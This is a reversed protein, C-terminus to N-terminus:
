YTKCDISGEKWFPNVYPELHSWDFNIEVTGFCVVGDKWNTDLSFPCSWLIDCYAHFVIDKNQTKESRKSFTQTQLPWSWVHLQQCDIYKPWWLQSLHDLIFLILWCFSEWLTHDFSRRCAMTYVLFSSLVRTKSNKAMWCLIESRYLVM